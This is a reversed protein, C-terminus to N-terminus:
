RNQERILEFYRAIVRNMEDILPETSAIPTDEGACLKDGFHANLKSVIALSQSNEWERAFEAKRERRRRYLALVFVVLGPLAALSVELFRMLNGRFM